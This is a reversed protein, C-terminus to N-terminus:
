TPPAQRNAAGCVEIPLIDAFSGERARNATSMPRHNVSAERGGFGPALTHQRVSLLTRIAQEAAAHNDFVILASDTRSM